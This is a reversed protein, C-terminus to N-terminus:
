KASSMVLTEVRSRSVDLLEDVQDVVALLPAVLDGARDEPPEVRGEDRREVALVDVGEGLLEVVDDVVHLRRGLQEHQVPDILGSGSTRSCASM